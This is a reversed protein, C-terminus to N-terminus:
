AVPASSGSPTTGNSTGAAPPSSTTATGTSATSPTATGTSATGSTVPTIVVGTVNGTIQAKQKASKTGRAARTAKAKAEKAALAAVSLPARPKKPAVAFAALTTMDNSFMLEVTERIAKVKAGSASMAAAEALRASALGTKATSVASSTELLSNVFTVAQPATFTESAVTFIANPCYKPIGGVLAVYEAISLKNLLKISPM